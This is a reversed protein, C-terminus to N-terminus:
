YSIYEDKNIAARKKREYDTQFLLRNISRVIYLFLLTLNAVTTSDFM